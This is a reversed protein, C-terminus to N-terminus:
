GAEHRRNEIALRLRHLNAHAGVIAADIDEAHRLPHESRQDDELMSQATDVLGPELQPDASDFDRVEAFAIVSREETGPTWDAVRKLGVISFKASTTLVLCNLAKVLKEYAPERAETLEDIQFLIQASLVARPNGEDRDANSLTLTFEDDPGRLTLSPGNQPLCLDSDLIFDALCLM